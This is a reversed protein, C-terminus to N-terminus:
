VCVGVTHVLVSSCAPCSFEGLLQEELAGWPQGTVLIEDPTDSAHQALFADWDNVIM